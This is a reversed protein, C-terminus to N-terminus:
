IKSKEPIWIHEQENQQHENAVDKIINLENKKEDENHINCIIDEATNYNVFQHNLSFKWIEKANNWDISVQYDRKRFINYLSKYGHSVFYSSLKSSIPYVQEEPKWIEIEGNLNKVHGNHFAWSVASLGHVKLDNKLSDCLCDFYAQFAPNLFTYDQTHYIYANHFNEPINSLGDGKHALDILMNNVKRGIRLGPYNQGPFQPRNQSFKSCPDQMCIWEILYLSYKDNLQSEMFKYVEMAGFGNIYKINKIFNDEEDNENFTEIRRLIQYTKFDSLIFKKKRIFLNILFQGNISKITSTFNLLSKDTLSLKHVFYDSTDFSIVIDKYGKIELEKKIGYKNINHYIDDLTFDELFKKVTPAFLDDDPLIFSSPMEYIHSIKQTINISQLSNISSHIGENAYEVFDTLYKKYNTKQPKINNVITSSIEEQQSIEKQQSVQKHQHKISSNM